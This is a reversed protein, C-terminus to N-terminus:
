RPLKAPSFATKVPISQRTHSTSTYVQTGSFRYQFITLLVSALFIMAIRYRGLGDHSKSRCGDRFFYLSLIKTSGRFPKLVNCQEVNWLFGLSSIMPTPAGYINPPRPQVYIMCTAGLHVYGCHPLCLVICPLLSFAHSTYLILPDPPM